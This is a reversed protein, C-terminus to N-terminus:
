RTELGYLTNRIWTDYKKDMYRTELGHITHIIWIVHKYDM